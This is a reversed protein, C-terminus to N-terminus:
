GVRGHKLLKVRYEETHIQIKDTVKIVVTMLIFTMVFSSRFFGVNPLSTALFFAILIHMDKSFSAYTKAIWNFIIGYLLPFLLVGFTGFQMYGESFMGNNPSANSLGFYKTGILSMASEHYVHPLIKKLLIVEDTLLLKPNTKFFDYYITNLWTPDYMMRRVVVYYLTTRGWIKWQFLCLLLGLFLGIIMFFSFRSKLKGLLYIALTAPIFLLQTKMFYMSYLSVIALLSIVIGLARKQKLSILLYVPALYTVLNTLIAAFRGFPTTATSGVLEIMFQRKDYNEGGILILSYDLGTLVIKYLIFISCVILCLSALKHEDGLISKTMDHVKKLAFSVDRRNSWASLVLIIEIIFFNSLLFFSFDANTLASVANLPMLYIAYLMSLIYDKLVSERKLFLFLLSEVIFFFLSFIDKLGNYNIDYHPHLLDYGLTYLINKTTYVYIFRSLLLLCLLTLKLILNGRDIKFKLM